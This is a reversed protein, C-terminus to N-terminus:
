KVLLCQGVHVTGAADQYTQGCGSMWETLILAMLAALAVGVFVQGVQGLKASTTSRTSM